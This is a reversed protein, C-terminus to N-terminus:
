RPDGSPSIGATTVFDKLVSWLRDPQDLWPFHGAGDIVELRGIGLALGHLIEQAAEIPTVADLEGVVVLTPATIRALDATLDLARMRAMGPEGVAPNRVRRALEDGSLVRPGFAAYVRAWEADTIEDGGYDRRALEAVEDGAVRRVGEVLRELDFRAMTSLLVLGGARAAYRIGYDLAIFGGMSHGLVIPREIGLADGFAAIDDACGAFTWAEPDHRGSRGHERLDLYIVQAVDALPAFWPKFYSHDYGGPGGHVLIVTPRQRMAAGDPVLSLGDVDFWLRTGNVDIHMPQAESRDVTSDGASTSGIDTQARSARGGRRMPVPRELRVRATRGLGAVEYDGLWGSFRVRGGADTRLPTPPLWWEGKVLGRLAEFSPKTSGDVRLFGSPAKLWGGDQIGWWTVSAVSPHAVLTRMHTVVQEAQRAEGDPTSPWEDVQWDNLDVIHAPMLEGSLLTNETWHLPLGFRAFRELVDQTREVGWYGQHM